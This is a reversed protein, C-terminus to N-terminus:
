HAHRAQFKTTLVKFNVNSVARVFAMLELEEIAQWQATLGAEVHRWVSASLLNITRLFCRQNETISRPQDCFDMM